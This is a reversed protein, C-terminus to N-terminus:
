KKLLPTYNDEYGERKSFHFHFFNAVQNFFPDGTYLIRTQVMTFVESHIRACLISESFLQSFAGM